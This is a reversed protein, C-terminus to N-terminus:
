GPRAFLGTMGQGVLAPTNPMARVIRPTGLLRAIDDTRLGAMVSYHLAHGTLAAYTQAADKFQQPKVAWVVTQAQQLNAQPGEATQVGLTETLRQRQEAVPDIVLISSPRSRAAVPRWHHRHGYQRRRHIRHRDFYEHAWDHRFWALRGCRRDGTALIATGIRVLTAGEEVAAELDNSMGMSLTDVALGAARWQEFLTRVLRLAANCPPTPVPAAPGHHRAPDTEAVSGGGSGFGTIGRARLREQQRGWQHEQVCVQLPPLHAPRQESLRQAIKLRDVTHVWDFAEAVPRTKNSQLPGILHWELESRIDSLAAIKDLAEQVYNEGFLKQGANFAERVNEAPFTKSVALLTVSTEERLVKLCAQSIRNRVLQLNNAITAM